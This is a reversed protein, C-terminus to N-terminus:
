VGSSRRQWPKSTSQPGKEDVPSAPRAADRSRPATRLAEDESLPVILMSAEVLAGFTADLRGALPEMVLSLPESSMRVRTEHRTHPDMANLLSKTRDVERKWLSIYIKSCSNLLSQQLVSRAAASSGNPALRDAAEIAVSAVLKASEVLCAKRDREFCYDGMHVSLPTLATCIALRLASADKIDGSWAVDAIKAVPKSKILDSFLKVAAATASDIDEALIRAGRKNAAIAEITVAVAEMTMAYAAHGESRQAPAIGAEDLLAMTMREAALVVTEGDAGTAIVATTLSASRKVANCIVRLDHSAEQPASLLAKNRQPADVGNSQMM